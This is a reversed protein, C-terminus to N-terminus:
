ASFNPSSWICPPQFARFLPIAAAGSVSTLEEEVLNMLGDMMDLQAGDYVPDGALYSRM